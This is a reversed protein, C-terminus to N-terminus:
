KIPKLGAKLAACALLISLPAGDKLYRAYTARSVGLAQAASDYTFGIEKQWNSLANM